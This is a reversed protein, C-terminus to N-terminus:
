SNDGDKDEGVCKEEKKRREHRYLWWPWLWILFVAFLGTFFATVTLKMSSIGAEIVM